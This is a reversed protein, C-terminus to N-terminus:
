TNRLGSPFDIGAKAVITQRRTTSRVRVTEVDRAILFPMTRGLFTYTRKQKALFTM